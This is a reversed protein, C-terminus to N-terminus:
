LDVAVLGIVLSPDVAPSVAMPVHVAEFRVHPRDRWDFTGRMIALRRDTLVQDYLDVIMAGDDAFGAERVSRGTYDAGYFDAIRSGIVKYRYGEPEPRREALFVEPLLKPVAMPDFDRRLPVAGLRPGEIELANLFATCRPHTPWADPRADLHVSAAPVM